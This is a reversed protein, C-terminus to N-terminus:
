IGLADLWTAVLWRDEVEVALSEGAIELPCMGAYPYRRKRERRVQYCHFNVYLEYVALFREPGDDGMFVQMLRMRRKFRRWVWEVVGTTRGLGAVIGKLHYTAERFTARVLRVVGQALPDDGYHEVLAYLGVVAERETQAGWVARVAEKLDDGAEEGKLSGYAKIDGLVNRWLQFVSRQRALRGLSLMDLVADYTRLGDSLWVKLEDLGVGLEPLREVGARLAEESLDPLRRLSLVVRTAGDMLAQIGFGVKQGIGDVTGKVWGWSEDTALIGAFLGRYRGAVSEQAQARTAAEQFWRWPTTHALRVRHAGKKPRRWPAWRLARGSHTIEGHLLAALERWSTTCDLYLDLAKRIVDRGYWRRPSLWPPMDAWTKGCRRNLCKYRQIPVKLRLVDLCRQGRPYFGHKKWLDSGCHPCVPRKPRLVLTTLFAIAHTVISM